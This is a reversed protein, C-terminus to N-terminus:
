VFHKSHCLCLFAFESGLSPPGLQPLPLSGGTHTNNHLVFDRPTHGLNVNGHLSSNHIYGYHAHPLFDSTFATLFAQFCPSTSCCIRCSLSLGGWGM